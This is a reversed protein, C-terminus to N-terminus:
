DKKKVQLVRRIHLEALASEEVESPAAMMLDEAKGNMPFLVVERINPEDAILMVMRDIGPAIGGHPPAGFRFANIMAPFKEDVTSNPYGAIEFAKYMVEPLHNRIAGSSLEVGNCVLDYQWAKITLPDQEELAKMGGQPMSFPNHSFDIKGTVPDAEFMPFDVIWAFRFLNRDILEQDQGIKVRARGALSAAEDAPACAFFVADGDGVGAAIRIAEAKEAGLAKAVPGRAEGGGYIIYGMGPAGEGQAWSNMRDAIARSGCKPGPVARVVAGKEINKAFIAFDSGRFIDTVDCIEFPIRLDPKDNGYKLLSDAFPIHVFDTDVVKNSFEEFVGKIVPEVAAFVDQQEVFSMELDLQYFEGPSRDARSDEDRFCPAIQFYRDFGSVMILQKFQQPAQPLAYFKGPHLRAPVLFDRAGEPSSATLIPTQFETFGQAVMRARISQIIKARLMINAHPRSRRLDLYRYRLRTEEGSDEDSNVQLPLTDAASQVEFAEIRVEIQGTPLNVNVTEDSRKLVTGTITVVSELRTAEVMAFSADSADTVCQTLGYHDRLDVFVLQGHDRKRNIWGSLRVQQGVNAETLEACNHSRYAHM